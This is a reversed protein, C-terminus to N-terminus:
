WDWGTWSKAAYTTQGAALGVLSSGLALLALQRLM